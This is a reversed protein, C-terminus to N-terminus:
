LIKRYFIIYEILSFVMLCASIIMLVNALMPDIGPFFVLFGMIVYLYVTNIKGFWKASNISDNKKMAVLGMTIMIVERIVFLLALLIMLKYRNALCIVVVLQTLKDAIPDIIKGLDSVMNFKRAIIGDIVDSLGSLVIILLAAGYNKEYCYQWVIVPILLFRILTLLNPITLVNEKTFLKKM